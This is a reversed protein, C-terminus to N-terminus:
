GSVLTRVVWEAINKGNFGYVMLTYRIVLL